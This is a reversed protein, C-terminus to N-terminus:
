TLVNFVFILLIILYVDVSNRDRGISTKDKRIHIIRPVSDVTPETNSHLLLHADCCDFILEEKKQKNM